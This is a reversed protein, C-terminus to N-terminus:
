TERARARARARDKVEVIAVMRNTEVGAAGGDGPEPRCTRKCKSFGLSLGPRDAGEDNRRAGPRRAREAGLRRALLFRVRSRSRRKRRWPSYRAGVEGERPAPRGPALPRAARVGNNGPSRGRRSIVSGKSIEGRTVKVGFGGPTAREDLHRALRHRKWELPAATGRSPVVPESVNVSGWLCVWVTRGRTM